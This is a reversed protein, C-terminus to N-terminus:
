APIQSDTTVTRSTSAPSGQRHQGARYGSPLALFRIPKPHFPAARTHRSPRRCRIDGASRDRSLTVARRQHRDASRHDARPLLQHEHLDHRDRRRYDAAVLPNLRAAM